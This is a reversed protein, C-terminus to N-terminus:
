SLEGFYINLMTKILPDILTYGNPHKEIYDKQELNQLLSTVSSSTMNVKNLFDKGTLKTTFGAAIAILIKRQGTSLASLERAIELREEKAFDLWAALIEEPTPSKKLASEWLRLCLTNMYYPHRETLDFIKALSESSLPRKWKKISLETLHKEYDQESIRELNIRDCLKYLPRAKDYFMHRLLHRNSGSFIFSLYKSQQAVHRIAGEIGKGEAIEGIEQMEDLFLIGRKNKQKLLHELALLAQMINTAPDSEKTAPTLVLHVGQTGITWQSDVTKFYDRLSRLLQETSSCAHSMAMKIGALIRQEIHKEDVAVFLDADGVPLDVEKVAYNVLSTKGYRRPSTLLTHQGTKINHILRKREEVRNCFAPDDAVGRPFYSEYAM